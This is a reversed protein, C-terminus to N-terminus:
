EGRLPLAHLRVSTATVTVATGRRLDPEYASLVRTILAALEADGLGEIRIRVVSPTTAGSLALHAHFDADLTVITRAERRCWQLIDVDEATALGIERTHVVDLHRARLLTAAGASCNQDLLLKM